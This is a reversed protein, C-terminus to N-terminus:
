ARVVLRPPYFFYPAAHQMCVAVAWDFINAYCFLQVTAINHVKINGKLGGHPVPQSHPVSVSHFKGEAESHM